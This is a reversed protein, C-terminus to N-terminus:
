SWSARYKAPTVGIATKFRRTFHSQDYFGADLAVESLPVEHTRLRRAAHEIRLRRVYDGVSVGYVARFSRTLHGRSVGALRALDNLEPSRRFDDDLRERVRRLWTPPSGLRKPDAKRGLLTTLGLIHAEAAIGAIDDPCELERRLMRGLRGADERIVYVPAERLSSPVNPEGEALWTVILAHSGDPAVRETHSEDVPVTLTGGAEVELQEGRITQTFGGRLQLVLGFREHVHTPVTTHPPLVWEEILFRDSNMTRVPTVADDTFFRPRRGEDLGTVADRVVRSHESVQM